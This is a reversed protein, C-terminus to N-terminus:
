RSASQLDALLEAYGPDDKATGASSRLLQVADDADSRAFRLAVAVPVATRIQSV